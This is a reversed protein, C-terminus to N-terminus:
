SLAKENLFVLALILSFITENEMTFVLFKQAWKWGNKGAIFNIPM